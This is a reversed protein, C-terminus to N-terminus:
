RIPSAMTRPNSVPVPAFHHTLKKIGENKRDNESIGRKEHASHKPSAKVFSWKMEVKQLHNTFNM